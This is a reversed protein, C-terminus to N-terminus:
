LFTSVSSLTFKTFKANTLEVILNMTLIHYKLERISIYHRNNLKVLLYVKVTKDYM